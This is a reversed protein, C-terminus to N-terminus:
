KGTKMQWYGSKTRCTKLYDEIKKIIGPHEEAIDTTEGIDNNLDYLELPQNPSHRVAKWKGMRVAQESTKREHFEWYLFDHKKQKNNEGILTPLFSIGDIKAPIEAGAIAAATPFFDWFASLHNNVSGAKIKGPYRAIMPVRIGGEYLDRKMGKLPGSSNFFDPDGGGEKHPGNDSTFFLITDEDLNLQKLKQIIRGVDRDMRSVMGAFAAFPTKQSGYAGYGPLPRKDGYKRTAMDIPSGESYSGQNGRVFPKEPFKGKYENLSDEPVLLEAHPITYPLYIFFPTETNKEIFRLTENTILDHAYQEQKGNKNGPLEVKKGNKWLYEPYYYHAYAQNLFGFWEDFGKEGPEGTTENMGLGWKGFM